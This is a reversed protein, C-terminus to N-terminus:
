KTQRLQGFVGPAKALANPYRESSFTKISYIYANAAPSTAWTTIRGSLISFQIRTNVSCRSSNIAACWNYLSQYFIQHIYFLATYKNEYSPYVASNRINPSMYFNLHIKFHRDSNQTSARLSSSEFCNRLGNFNMKKNENNM